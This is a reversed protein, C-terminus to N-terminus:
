PLVQSALFIFDYAGLGLGWSMVTVVQRTCLWSFAWFPDVDLLGVVPFWAFHLRFGHWSIISHWSIWPCVFGMGPWLKEDRLSNM